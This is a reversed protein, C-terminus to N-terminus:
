RAEDAVAEALLQQGRDNPHVGDARLIHEAPDWEAPVGALDAGHRAAVEATVRNYAALVRASGDDYPPYADWAVIPPDAVLVIEPRTGGRTLHDLMEELSAEYRPLGARGLRRADNLAAEIAVTDDPDPTYQVVVEAIAPSEAGSVGRNDAVLGLEGAARSAWAPGTGPQGGEVFSHGFAVLSGDEGGCGALAAALVALIVRRM